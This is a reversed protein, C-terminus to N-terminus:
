AWSSSIVTNELGSTEFIVEKASSFLKGTGESFPLRPAARPGEAPSKSKLRNRM